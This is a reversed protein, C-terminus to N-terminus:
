MNSAEDYGQGRLQALSLSHKFFLNEITSILSLDTTNSVHVIGLNREIVQRHKDM